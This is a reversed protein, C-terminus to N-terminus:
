KLLNPHGQPMLLHVRKQKLDREVDVLREIEEVVSVEIGLGQAIRRVAAAEGAGYGDVSAARIADYVLIRGSAKLVGLQMLEKLESPTPPTATEIEAVIERAYGKAACYGAIWDREADSVTGDRAAAALLSRAMNRTVEPETISPAKSFGFQDGYVWAIASLRTDHSMSTTARPAAARMPGEGDGANTDPQHMPQNEAVPPISLTFTAGPGDNPKAWLRGGHSEVITRSVALGIGMGESKTTYFPEFLKEASEGSGVGIGSDRVSLRVGDKTSGTDIVLERPRDEVTSMAACANLLLNLIVQQLQIRDGRISPLDSAFETHLTVRHRRLESTHLAVVERAAENLDLLKSTSQKRTFLARLRAIVDAARNSDRIIREASRKAGEINPRDAALMRLCTNANTVIGSLPQNVEHAISATLAAMSAVRTMYTLEARVKALTEDESARLAEDSRKREEIDVNTCFWRVVNGDADRLPHAHFLFWRYAGDHRLLRVEHGASEGSALAAKWATMLGDLDDPHLRATWGWGEVQELSVRGYDLWRQNMYDGRGDPLASWALVAMSDIVKKLDHEPVSM